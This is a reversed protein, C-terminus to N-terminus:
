NIKEFQNRREHKNSLNFDPAGVLFCTSKANIHFCINTRDLIIWRGTNMHRHTERLKEVPNKYLHASVNKM